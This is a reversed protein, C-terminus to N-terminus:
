VDWFNGVISGLRKQIFWHIWGENQVALSVKPYRRINPVTCIGWPFDEEIVM